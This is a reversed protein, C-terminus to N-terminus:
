LLKQGSLPFNDIYAITFNEKGLCITVNKKFYIVSYQKVMNLIIILLLINTWIEESHNDRHYSFTRLLQTAVKWNTHLSMDFTLISSCFLGQDLILYGGQIVDWFEFYFM